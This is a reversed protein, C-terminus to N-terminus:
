QVYGLSKLQQMTAEDVPGTDLGITKRHDENRRKHDILANGLDAQIGPTWTVLNQKELPDNQVDFFLVSQGANVNQRFVALDDITKGTEYILKQRETQCSLGYVIRSHPNESFLMREATPRGKGTIYPMLSEGATAPPIDIRAIDLVTPFLDINSLLENVTRPQIDMARPPCIVLPVALLENYLSNGHERLGHEWFGEGHDSTILIYTKDLLGKQKMLDQMRGVLEDTMRIEADYCNIVGQKEERVLRRFGPGFMGEFPPKPTYPQHPYVLHVYLFFRDEEVKELVATLEEFVADPASGVWKHWGLKKSLSVYDDFGQDFNRKMNIGPHDVIAATRYGGGRLIEALTDLELPLKQKIARGHPAPPIVAQPYLGTFLTVITPDTWPCVSYLRKFVIGEAAIRDIRPSTERGYGYCGLHDPRLTDILLYVINPRNRMRLKDCGLGGALIAALAVGMLFSSKLVDRTGPM